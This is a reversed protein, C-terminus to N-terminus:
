DHRPWGAACRCPACRRRASILTNRAPENRQLIRLPQIRPRHFM